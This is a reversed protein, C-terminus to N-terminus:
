LEPWQPGDCCQPARRWQEYQEPSTFTYAKGCSGCSVTRPWEGKSAANGDDDAEGALGFAQCLAYRRKYTLEGGYKQANSNPTVPTRDLVMDGDPAVVRTVLVVGGADVETGQTVFLGHANCAERVIEAVQDLTAYKSGYFPNDSDKKPNMMQSQAAALREAIGKHGEM